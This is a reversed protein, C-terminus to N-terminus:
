IKSVKNISMEIKEITNDSSQRKQNQGNIKLPWVEECIWSNIVTIGDEAFEDVLMTRYYEKPTLGGGVQVNSVMDMWDWFYTSAAGVQTQLLKELTGNGFKNRGGTKVDYNVDGHAIQEIERDPIDVNQFLYPDIPSEPFSVSFNYVKRPNAVKAM